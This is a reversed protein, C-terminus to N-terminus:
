IRPVSVGAANNNGVTPVRLDLADRRSARERRQRALDAMQTQVPRETDAPPPATDISPPALLNM